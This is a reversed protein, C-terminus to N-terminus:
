RSNRLRLRQPLLHRKQRTKGYDRGLLDLALGCVEAVYDRGDRDLAASASKTKLREIEQELETRITIERNTSSSAL